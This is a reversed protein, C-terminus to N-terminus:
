KSISITANPFDLCAKIHESIFPLFREYTGWGNESSLQKYKEPNAIMKKYGKVLVDVTEIPKKNEVDYNWLVDYIGAKNAMKSLNHTMNNSYVTEEDQIFYIDLSM